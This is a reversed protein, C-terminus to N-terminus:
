RCSSVACSREPLTLTPQDFWGFDAEAVDVVLVDEVPEM